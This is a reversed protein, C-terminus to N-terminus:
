GARGGGLGRVPLDLTDNEALREPSLEFWCFSLTIPLLRAFMLVIAILLLVTSNASRTLWDTPPEVALGICTPRPTVVPEIEGLKRWPPMSFVPTGVFTAM